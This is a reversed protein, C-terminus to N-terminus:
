EYKSRLEITSNGRGIRYSVKRIYGKLWEGTGCQYSIYGYPNARITLFDNLSLPYEFTINEPRFLPTSDELTRIDDSTIDENEAHAVQSEIACDDSLYGSALVNGTGAVFKIKKTPDVVRYSGIISKYWRLLNRFPSIRFNYVTDPDVINSPDLIGGQEVALEDHLYLYYSGDRVMCAIFINNDYKTDAAGTEAFSQQRTIEWVSSAAVFECLIDLVTKANDLILRHERTSNFEDLGNIAEPEWNTYGSKIEGIVEEINVTKLASSVLPLRIVEVDQFFYTAPEVKLVDEGASNEQLAYGINDIARLGQLATKLSMSLSPTEARRIYLGSTLVRLSGCGDREYATPQSDTRGYYESELKLCKNSMSETLRSLLEHVAYVFAQSDECISLATIDLFNTPADEPSPDQSLNIFDVENYRGIQYFFGFTFKDGQAIDIPFSDALDYTYTGPESIDVADQSYLEQWNAQNTEDLGAPLRFLKLRMLFGGDWDTAGVEVSGKVRFSAMGNSLECRIDNLLETTNITTIYQYPPINNAGYYRIHEFGSSTVFSGLSSYKTEPLGPMLWGFWSANICGSCEWDIDDTLVKTHGDKGGLAKDQLKLGVAPLTIERRLWDYTDLDTTDDIAKTKDVDIVKDINGAVKQFCGKQEFSISVTCGAGCQEQYTNYDLAFDESYQVVDDCTFTVRLTTAGETGNNDYEEKIIEAALGEFTLDRSGYMISVGHFVPDRQVVFDGDSWGAPEEVELNDTDPNLIFSWDIM